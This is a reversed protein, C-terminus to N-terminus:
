EPKYMAMGAPATPSTIFGGTPLPARSRVRRHQGPRPAARFCTAGEADKSEGVLHLEADAQSLPELFSSLDGPRREEHATAAQSGSSCRWTAWGMCRHIVHRVGWEYRQYSVNPHMYWERTLLLLQAKAFRSGGACAFHHPLRSGVGRVVPIGSTPMSIIDANNLHKWEHNRRRASPRPAPQGSRREVVAARRLLFSSAGIMGPDGPACWGSIRASDKRCALSSPTPERRTSRGQEDFGRFHSAQAADSLRSACVAKGHAPWACAFHAAAKTGRSQPNSRMLMEISSSSTSRTKSIVTVARRVAPPREDRKRSSGPHTPSEICGIRVSQRGPDPLM